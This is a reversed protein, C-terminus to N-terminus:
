SKRRAGLRGRRRTYRWWPDRIAAYALVLAGAATLYWAISAGQATAPPVDLLRRIGPTFWALAIIALSIPAAVAGGLDAYRSRDCGSAAAVALASWGALQAILPYVAARHGAGPPITDSMIRVQGWCTAAVVPLALLTQGAPTVGAPVPTSRTVSRFSSHPVFALAAIAPLFALRVSNVDLPSHSTDAFHALVGLLATGALCGALLAGWPMTKAVPQVLIPLARLWVLRPRGILRVPPSTTNV